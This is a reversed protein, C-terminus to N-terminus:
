GRGGARRRACRRCCRYVPEVAELTDAARHGRADAGCRPCFGIAARVPAFTVTATEPNYLCDCDDCYYMDDHITGINGSGCGPCTYRDTTM